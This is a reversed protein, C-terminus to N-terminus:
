DLDESANEAAPPLRPPEPAIVIGNEEEYKERARRIHRAIAKVSFEFTREKQRPLPRRGDIQNIILDPLATIGELYPAPFPPPVSM